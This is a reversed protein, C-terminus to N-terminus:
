SVLEELFIKASCINFLSQTSMDPFDNKFNNKYKKLFFDKSIFDYIQNRSDTDFFWQNFKKNNFSFISSFSANFGKKERNLRIKDHIIKNSSLRLLYKNFANKMFLKSPMKFSINVLDKNLFPSRNEISYYMANLDDDILALPVTQYLLENLMKNRLLNKTFFKDNYPKFKKLNLFKDDLLTFYSKINKKNIIKYEKNRLIPYINKNWEKLFSNKENNKKLTNYFLNYHHYYGSFLEDAGNGNISIKVNDNKMQKYILSQLFLSITSIPKDYYRVLKKLDPMHDIKNSLYIKKNKIGYKKITYNILSEENYRESSTDIISYTNINKKLKKKIFGLIFNSDIGGSLSLGVKLDTNCILKIKKEFNEKILEKCKSETFKNEQVKPEWYTFKKIELDRNIILNSGASIKYINKFFSEESQEISKYGYKLYQYIKKNNLVKYDNLLLRVFKTESGFFFNSTNKFFYIPKEGVRDRSIFVIQKNEDFILFAWMGEFYKVCNTGFIKYMKLILETDSKTKLKLGYYHVTKKIEDINYIEGNFIITLNDITMPQNSRENRDVIKLRSSLLYINNEGFNLKKYGQHDPGRNKMAGLTKAILSKSLKQKGIYGSIGCM